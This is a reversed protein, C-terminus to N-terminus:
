KEAFLPAKKSFDSLKQGSFPANHEKRYREVRDQMNEFLVKKRHAQMREKFDQTMKETANGAIMRFSLEPCQEKFEALSNGTGEILSKLNDTYKTRRPWVGYIWTIDRGLRDKGDKLYFDTLEYDIRKWDKPKELVWMEGTLGADPIKGRTDYEVRDAELYYAHIM